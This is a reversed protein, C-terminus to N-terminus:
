SKLVELTEQGCKQWSFEKVRQKGLNILENRLQSNQQLDTMKKLWIM